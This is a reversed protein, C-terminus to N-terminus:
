DLRSLRYSAFSINGNKARNGFSGALRVSYRNVYVWMAQQDSRAAYLVALTNGPAFFTGSTEIPLDGEM